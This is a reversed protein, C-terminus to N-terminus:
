HERIVDTKIHRSLLPQLDTYAIVTAIYALKRNPFDLLRPCFCFGLMACLIFVHDSAGGTDTYHTGTMRCPLGM